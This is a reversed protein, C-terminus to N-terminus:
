VIRLFKLVWTLVTVTGVGAAAQNVGGSNVKPINSSSNYTNEGLSEHKRYSNVMNEAIKIKKEAEEQALEIDAISSIQMQELLKKNELQELSVQNQINQLAKETSAQHADLGKKLQDTISQIDIALNNNGDAQLLKNFGSSLLEKEQGLIFNINHLEGAIALNPKVHSNISTLKDLVGTPNNISIALKKTQANLSNDLTSLKKLAASQGEQYQALQVEGITNADGLKQDISSLLQTQSELQTSNDVPKQAIIDMLNNTLNSLIQGMNPNNIESLVNIKCKDILETPIGSLLSHFNGQFFLYNKITIPCLMLYIIITSLVCLLGLFFIQLVNLLGLRYFVYVTIILLVLIIIFLFM